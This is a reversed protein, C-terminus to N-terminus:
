PETAGGVSDNNNRSPSSRRCAHSQLRLCSTAQNEQDFRAAAKLVRYEELLRLPPQVVGAESNESVAFDRRIIAAEGQPLGRDGRCPQDRLLAGHTEAKRGLDHPDIVRLPHEGRDLDAAHASLDVDDADDVVFM